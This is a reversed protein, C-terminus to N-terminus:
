MRISVNRAMEREDGRGGGSGGQEGKVSMEEYIHKERPLPATSGVNDRWCGSSAILSSRLCRRVDVWYVLVMSECIHKYFVFIVVLPM